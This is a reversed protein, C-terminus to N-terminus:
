RINEYKCKRKEIRPHVRIPKIRFKKNLKQELKKCDLEAKEQSFYVQIESDKRYVKWQKKNKFQLLYYM